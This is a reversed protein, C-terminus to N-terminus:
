PLLTIIPAILTSFFGGPAPTATDEPTPPIPTLTPTPLQTETPPPTLTVTPTITPTPTDTPIPTPTPTPTPVQINLHIRLEAYTNQTSHLYIRLTIPGSLGEKQVLEDLNWKVLLDSQSVPRTDQALNKWKNPDNGIGYDVQWSAFLQTADAVGRIELPSATITDGDRVSDFSLKPRPDDAKCDRGPAFTVDKKGFGNDKAWQKGAPDQNIWKKAWKDNVNLVFREDTFDKCDNSARLETWTDIVMKQYLDQEKPLPPQDAAFIESRQDKCWQSPQTGSLVCIVNQVIGGPRNFPAPHGGTLQQIASKMFTSWIPAAGTLGTTNQMPTYDANGVWVGVALDPTYGMTWNDRFDNTTGTKAAAPFPLKLVSNSGFAPTRAENDSLISSILYAHEPRIAQDGAPPQYDYIVDGNHDLIRTIAVPPLRRGSNAFVGFASTMDLLTVEGGGLTLALGYDPRTLTQIGMRKAFSIFGDQAPTNPDDYIGVFDLTKVAPVNYSNALATRVTVPGRFRGDYDVPKYPPRNDDLRGSPPFESPVDWLLTAPTWGKEFAATYTLPKISSGPQRPSVAMNVQGSIAVNNFDASGVMALIEGTSPRIAVLAGDTVHKDALSDVQDRITKQALDQLGPDLTTYVTFGSRYITQADFQSELLYRVYNVWHPYRMQPDSPKFQYNKIEDAASTIAVPDLCIREPNNSVFICGQEQSAQYMLLLAAEDRKLTLDRNSYIDYVSPAQPLGALFAAQGMTLQDATTQFYTEAAAEVGYALNGYYNENLYLELIDDKSYRRTIEAALIAERVKRSYSHEAREEPSFLLNRALQQTITSAGSVTEGSTYNQYFARAIAFADFGPHNYFEKDEVAITAAVLYPSIKNLHVYTRRGANPDLIEYLVNGNRDLIRTTEFQSAKQDLDHIDPLTKAISYYQYLLVSAGCLVILVLVFLSALSARLLCGLARRPNPTSRRPAQSTSRPHSGPPPPVSPPPTVPTSRPASLPVRQAGPGMAPSASSPPISSLPRKIPPILAVAALRRAELDAGNVRRPLPFGYADVAPAPRPTSPTPLPTALTSPSSLQTAAPDQSARKVLTPKTDEETPAPQPDVEPHEIQPQAEVSVVTELEPDTLEPQPPQDVDVSTELTQGANPPQGAIDASVKEGMVDQAAEGISDSVTKSAAHSESPYIPIEEFDGEASDTKSPLNNGDGLPLPLSQESTM